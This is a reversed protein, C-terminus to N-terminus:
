YLSFDINLSDIINIKNKLLKNFINNFNCDIKINNIYYKDINEIDNELEINNILLQTLSNKRKKSYGQVHNDKALKVLEKFYLSDLQNITPFFRKKYLELSFETIIFTDLM